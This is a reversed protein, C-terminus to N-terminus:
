NNNEIEKKIEYLIQIAQIPTIMDLNLSQLDDISKIKGKKIKREEKTAKEKKELEIVEVNLNLEKFIQLYRELTNEPFGCKKVTPTFQTCKLTTIKSIRLADEELFIYFLGSKFLYLKNADEKKLELYKDYIRSM